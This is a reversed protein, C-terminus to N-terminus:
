ALPIKGARRGTPLPAAPPAKRLAATDDPNPVLEVVGALGGELIRRRGANLSDALEASFAGSAPRRGQRSVVESAIVIDGPRLTPCLGGAVGFSVIGRVTSPNFDALKARLQHPDSSSCIVTIGPGAVIRAERLLGTVILM